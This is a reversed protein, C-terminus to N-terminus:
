MQVNTYLDRLDQYSHIKEIDDRQIIAVIVYERGSELFKEGIKVPMTFSM